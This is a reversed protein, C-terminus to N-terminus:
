IAVVSTKTPKGNEFCEKRKVRNQRDYNYDIQSIGKEKEVTLESQISGDVSILKALVEINLSYIVSNFKDKWEDRFKPNLAMQLKVKQNM